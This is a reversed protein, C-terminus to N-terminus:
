AKKMVPIKPKPEVNAKTRMTKDSLGIHTEMYKRILDETKM